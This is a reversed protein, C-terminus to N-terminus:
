IRTSPWCPPIGTSRLPTLNAPALRTVAGPQERCTTGGAEGGYKDALTGGLLQTALYGWLFASQLPLHVSPM